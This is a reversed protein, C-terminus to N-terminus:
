CSGAKNSRFTKQNVSLDRIENLLNRLKTRPLEFQPLDAANAELKRELIEMEKRVDGQNTPLNPM